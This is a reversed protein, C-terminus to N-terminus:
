GALRSQGTVNLRGGGDAGRSWRPALDCAWAAAAVWAVGLGISGVVDSPYHIGLYVRSFGVLAALGAAAWPAAAAAPSGPWSRSVIWALALYVVCAGLAHESPFASSHVSVVHEYPPRPREVLLKLLNGLGFGGLSAVAVFAAQHWRRGAVLLAIAVFALVALV